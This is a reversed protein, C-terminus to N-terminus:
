DEHFLHCRLLSRFPVVMLTIVQLPLWSSIQPFLTGAVPVSCEFTRLCSRPQCTQPVALLPTHNSPLSIPSFLLSLSLHLPQAPPVKRSSHHDKSKSWTLYFGGFTKLPSTIHDIDMKFPGSLSGHLLSRHCLSFTWFCLFRLFLTCDDLTLLSSQPWPTTSLCFPQIKFM